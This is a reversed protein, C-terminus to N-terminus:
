QLFREVVEAIGDHNHDRQTIYDAAAKVRDTGNVMAVGIGATEIMALDNDGDGVAVTNELSVGLMACLNRIAQGKNMGKPVIELFEKCSFFCDVADDMEARIFAEMALPGTRDEYDIVLCKVPEQSLAQEMDEVVKYGLGVRACYRDLFSNECRAEVLVADDEYTQIHLGRRNAERFLKKVTELPITRSFVTSHSGHDYLIGGNSAVLLCGPTNLGLKDAQQRASKLTRGTAIIVSHGRELAAQLADRNGQTIEKQDNLLTGDLDLFLLKKEM